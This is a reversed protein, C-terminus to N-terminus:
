WVSELGERRGAERVTGRLGDRGQVKTLGIRVKVLGQM